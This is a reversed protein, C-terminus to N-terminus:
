DYLLTVTSLYSIKKYADMVQLFEKISTVVQLLYATYNYNGNEYVYIFLISNM